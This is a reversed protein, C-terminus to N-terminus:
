AQAQTEAQAKRRRRIMAAAGFLGTSLLLMSGPEPVPNEPVLINDESNFVRDTPGGGKLYAEGAFWDNFAPFGEPPGYISLASFTGVDTQIPASFDPGTYTWSLNTITPSDPPVPDALTALGTPTIGTLTPSAAWSGGTFSTSLDGGAYGDFDYITFVSGSRLVQTPGLALTYEWRWIGSGAPEELIPGNGLILEARANRTSIGLLGMVLAGVFAARGVRSLTKKCRM